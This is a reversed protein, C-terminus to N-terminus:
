VRVREAQCGPAAEEERKELAQATTEIELSLKRLYFESWPAPLNILKQVLPCLLLLHRINRSIARFLFLCLYLRRLVQAWYEDVEVRGMSHIDAHGCVSSIRLWVFFEVLHREPRSFTEKIFFLRTSSPNKDSVWLSIFSPVCVCTHM